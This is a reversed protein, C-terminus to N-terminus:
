RHSAHGQLRINLAMWHLARQVSLVLSAIVVVRRFKAVQLVLTVTDCHLAISKDAAASHSGSITSGGAECFVWM